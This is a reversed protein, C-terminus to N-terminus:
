SSLSLWIPVPSVAWSITTAIGSPNTVISPFELILPTGMLYTQNLIAGSGIELIYITLVHSKVKLSPTM